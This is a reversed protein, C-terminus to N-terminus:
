CPAAMAPVFRRHLSRQPADDDVQLESAVDAHVAQSMGVRRVQEFRADVQSQQLLVETVRSAYFCVRKPAAEKFMLNWAFCPVGHIPM